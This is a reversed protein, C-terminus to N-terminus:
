RPHVWVPEKPPVWDRGADHIIRLLRAASVLGQETHQHYWGEGGSAGEIYRLTEVGDRVSVAATRM